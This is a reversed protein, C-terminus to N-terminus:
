ERKFNTTLVLNELIKWPLAILVLLILETLRSNGVQNM